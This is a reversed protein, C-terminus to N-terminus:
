SKPANTVASTQGNSNSSPSNPNSGSGASAPKKAVSKKKPAAKKPAEAQAVVIPKPPAAAAAALQEQQAKIQARMQNLQNQATATLQELSEGLKRRTSGIVQLQQALAEYDGKQGFVRTVETLTGFVEYLADLNRYLKFEANVDEPASRVADILGPLALTLNRQVSDADAQAASRAGGNAKWKEIRLGGIQLAAQSAVTQLRDLDPTITSTATTAISASRAGSNESSASPAEPTQSMMSASAFLLLVFTLVIEM